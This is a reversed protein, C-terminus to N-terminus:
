VERLQPAYVSYDINDKAAENAFWGPEKHSTDIIEETSYDIFTNITLELIDMESPLFLDKNFTKIPIFKNFEGHQNEYSKTEVYGETETLGFILSYNDPVPGMNIAAYRCGTISKGFYKFHAFDAYFLLKNLRTKFPAEDLFYLVMNAFKKFSPLKFGTYSNPIIDRPFLINKLRLSFDGDITKDIKKLITDLQSQRFLNAKKTLLKKFELPEIIMNLLTINGGAPIESTEYLRYQNPGFGLIESMKTQSLGYSERILKLQEPFPISHKERYKNHVIQVNYNDVQENTFSHSCKDCKYFHEFVDFTEGRYKRKKLVSLLSAKGDCVTCNIKPKM